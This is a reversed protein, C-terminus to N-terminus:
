YFNVEKSLGCQDLLLGLLMQIKNLRQSRGYLLVSVATLLHALRHKKKLNICHDLITMLSPLKTTLDKEVTTWDFKLLDNTNQVKLTQVEKQKVIQSLEKEIQKSVVGVIADAYKKSKMLHKIITDPDKNNFLAKIASKETEDKIIRSRDDGKYKM